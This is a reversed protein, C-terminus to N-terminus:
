YVDDYYDYYDDYHYLIDIIKLLNCTWLSTTRSNVSNLRINETKEKELKEIIINRVYEKIKEYKNKEKLITVYEEDNIDMYILARSILSEVSNLKSKALMLIKDRKKKKNRTTKWLKKTIGTALSFLITFGASAIGVPVGVITRYSIICIGGTTTNLVILIKDIYNFTTVYKNLKKSSLKRQNIEEHFYTEIKKIEDVRFKTQDSLKTKDIEDM